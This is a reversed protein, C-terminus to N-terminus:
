PTYTIKREVVGSSGANAGTVKMHVLYLGAAAHRGTATMGDWSLERMGNMEASEVNRSWVSRGWVDLIALQVQKAGQPIQFSVPSGGSIRFKFSNSSSQSIGVVGQIWILLDVTTSGAVNTATVTYTVYGGNPVTPIGTVAGSNTDLILGTPLAPSVSYRAVFGSVTPNNPPIAQNPLYATPNASYYFNTPAGYVSINVTGQTSRFLM